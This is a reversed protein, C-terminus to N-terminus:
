TLFNKKGTQYFGNTYESSFAISLFKGSFSMGVGSPMEPSHNIHVVQPFWGTKGKSSFVKKKKINLNCHLRLSVMIGNLSAVEYVIM